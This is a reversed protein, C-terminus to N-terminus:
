PALNIRFFPFYTCDEIHCIWIGFKLNMTPPWDTSHSSAGLLPPLTLATWPGDQWTGTIITLIMWIENMNKLNNLSNIFFLGPAPVSPQHVAVVSSHHGSINYVNSHRNCLHLHHFRYFTQVLKTSFSQIKTPVLM